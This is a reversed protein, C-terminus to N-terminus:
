RISTGQELDTMLTEDNGAAFPVIARVDSDTDEALAFGIKPTTACARPPPSGSRAVSAFTCAGIM